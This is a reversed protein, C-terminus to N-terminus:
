SAPEKGSWVLPEGNADVVDVLKPPKDSDATAQDLQEQTLGRCDRLDAGTVDAGELNAGVLHAGKLNSAFLAAGELNADALYAGDLNMRILLAGELNAGGLDAGELNAGALRAGKLNADRLALTYEREKEIEIQAESRKCVATMIAQIDERVRLPRDEGAEDGAEEWGSKFKAAPTLSKVPLPAEFPEGIPNRVFACFLSMIELHYDGPHERALLALAYVGGLRVSLRGSGFMEAGKQYRENLLGRQATESQRQATEAQRQAADAQREAVISRWIAFLIAIVGGIVVGVNRVTTSLSEQDGRLEEWYCWSLSLSTVLVLGIRCDM